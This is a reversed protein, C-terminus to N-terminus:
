IYQTEDTHRSYTLSFGSADGLTMEAGDFVPDKQRCQEKFSSFDGQGAYCFCGCRDTYARWECGALQDEHPVLPESCWFALLGKGKKLFFWNGEQEVVEFKSAPLFVHIFHIPYEERIEYIAGICHNEQKVAPMIGNGYWYGPRMTSDDCTGGPHNAFLIAEKSLAAVWM